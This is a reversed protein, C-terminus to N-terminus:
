NVLTVDFRTNIDDGNLRVAMDSLRLHMLISTFHINQKIYRQTTQINLRKFVKYTNNKAKFMLKLNITPM